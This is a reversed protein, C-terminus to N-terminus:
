ELVSVDTAAVVAMKKQAYRLAVQALRPHKKGDEGGRMRTQVKVCMPAFTPSIGLSRLRFHIVCRSCTSSSLM